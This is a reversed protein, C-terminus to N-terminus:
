YCGLETYNSYITAHKCCSLADTCASCYECSEKALNSWSHSKTACSQAGTYAEYGYTPSGCSTSIDYDSEGGGQMYCRGSWTRAREDLTDNYKGSVSTTSSWEKYRIFGPACKAESGISAPFSCVKVGGADKVVGGNTTCQASTHLGNVLDFVDEGGGFWKRFFEILKQFFGQDLCKGSACFNSLCEFDNECSTEPSSQGFFNGSLSCYRGTDRYGYPVCKENLRCGSCEPPICVIEERTESKNCKIDRCTQIQRGNSPCTAPEISCNFESTCVEEVPVPSQVPVSIECAGWGCATGSPCPYFRGSYSGNTNCRYEFVSNPYNDDCYDSLSENFGPYNSSVTGRSTLNAGKDSDECPYTQTVNTERASEQVVVCAGEHCVKGSPCPYLKGSYSGNTNCRYEFVSASYEEQCFDSQISEFSLADSSVTGRETLNLGLDSDTCYAASTFSFSFIFIGFLFAVWFFREKQKGRM